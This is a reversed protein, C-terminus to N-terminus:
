LLASITELVMEMLPVALLLAAGGGAVELFVAIGSEGADRCLAASFRTLLGVGVTKIVPTVVAPSLGAAQQLKDLMVRVGTLPTLSMGLIMAGALLALVVALEPTQKRLVVACLAALIGLAAIKGVEVM